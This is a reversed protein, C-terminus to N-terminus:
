HDIDSEDFASWGILAKYAPHWRGRGTGFFHCCYLLTHIDTIIFVVKNKKGYNCLAKIFSVLSPSSIILLYLIINDLLDYSDTLLKFLFYVYDVTSRQYCTKVRSSCSSSKGGVAKVVIVRGPSWMWIFYLWGHKCLEYLLCYVFGQM